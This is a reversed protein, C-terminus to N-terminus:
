QEADSGTPPSVPLNVPSGSARVIKGVQVPEGIYTEVIQSYNVTRDVTEIPVDIVTTLSRQYGRAGITVVDTPAALKTYNTRSYVVAYQQSGYLNEADLRTAQRETAYWLRPLGERWISFMPDAEIRPRPAEGFGPGIRISM